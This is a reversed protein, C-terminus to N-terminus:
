RVSALLSDFMDQNTSIIQAAASYAQQAVIMNSMENSSDVTSSELSGGVISGAGGTGAPHLVYDGSEATVSYVSGTNVQLGNPNPFTAVPIQYIAMNQGNDYYAILYGEDDVEVSTMQGYAVGDQTIGGTGLDVYLDDEDNQAFQSLGDSAGTTGLDM